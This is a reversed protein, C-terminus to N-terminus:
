ARGKLDDTDDIDDVVWGDEVFADVVEDTEEENLTRDYRITHMTQICMGNNMEYANKNHEKSVTVITM